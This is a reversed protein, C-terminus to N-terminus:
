VEPTGMTPPAHPHQLAGGGEGHNGLQFVVGGEWVEWQFTFGGELFHNSSFFGFFQFSNNIYVQTKSM